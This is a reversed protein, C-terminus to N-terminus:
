VKGRKDRREERARRNKPALNLLTGKITSIRANM